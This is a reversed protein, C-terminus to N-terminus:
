LGTVTWGGSVSDRGDHRRNDSRGFIVVFVLLHNRRNDGSYHGSRDRRNDGRRVFGDYSGHYGSRNCRNHRACDDAACADVIPDADRNAHTYV